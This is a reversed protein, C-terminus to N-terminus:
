LARARTLWGLSADTDGGPKYEAGLPRQWGLADIERFLAAYDLAGHDPPGRDPVAAFQIHGVHTLVNNLQTLVDGEARAVHYCDFMMRLNPASVDAIVRRAHDTTQLFYGPADVPNIPEILIMRGCARDCAYELNARFTKEAERGDANGAMVHIAEAGAIEAYRVADDIARRADADRSPIATIGFDGATHDGRKTNLGLIPLGTARLASRLDGPPTDYPWHCEVADFGARAAAHIAQPLELQTWLFGLNASFRPM